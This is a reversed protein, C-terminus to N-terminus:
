HGGNPIQYGIPNRTAPPAEEKDLFEKVDQFLLHIKEDHDAVALELDHLKKVIDKNTELIKRVRIFARMIAINVMISEDSHLVSSLMAIGQETFAFPLYKPHEGRKLTAIQSRLSIFEEKTLEFMFDDPFRMRNRRVAEKLRRVEVHYLKALDRDLMVKHPSLDM